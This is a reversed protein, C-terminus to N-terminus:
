KVEAIRSAKAKFSLLAKQLYRHGIVAISFVVDLNPRALIAPSRSFHECHPAHTLAHGIFMLMMSYTFLPCRTREVSHMKQKVHVVTHGSPTRLPVKLISIPPLSIRSLFNSRKVMPEVPDGFFGAGGHAAICYEGGM